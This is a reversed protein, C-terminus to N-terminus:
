FNPRWNRQKSLSGASFLRFLEVLLKLVSTDGSIDQNGTENKTTNVLTEKLYQLLSLLGQFLM